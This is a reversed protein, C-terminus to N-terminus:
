EEYNLSKFTKIGKLGLRYTNILQPLPVHGKRYLFLVYKLLWLYTWHQYFLYAQATKSQIFRPEAPNHGTTEGYHKTITKAAFAAKLGQKLISHYFIQEESCLFTSGLGFNENMKLNHQVIDKRKFTIEISSLHLKPSKTYGPKLKYKKMYEPKDALFQFSILSAKDFTAYAEL